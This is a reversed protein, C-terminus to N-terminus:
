RNLLQLAFKTMQIEERDGDPDADYVSQWHQVLPEAVERIQDTWGGLSPVADFLQVLTWMVEHLLSVSKQGNWGEGLYHKAHGLVSEIANRLHPDLSDGGRGRNVSGVSGVMAATSFVHFLHHRSQDACKNVDDRVSLGFDSELDDVISALARSTAAILNEDSNSTASTLLHCVAEPGCLVGVLALRREM